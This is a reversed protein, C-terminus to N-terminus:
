RAEPPRLVTARHAGRPATTRGNQRLEGVYEEVAQAPIRRSAGIQVSELKGLRLLEFVKTRGIALSIAAQEPTLLLQRFSMGDVREGADRGHTSGDM